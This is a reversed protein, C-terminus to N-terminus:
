IRKQIFYYALAIIKVDIVLFQELIKKGFRFLLHFMEFASNQNNLAVRGIMLFDVFNEPGGVRQLATGRSDLHGLYRLKGVRRTRVLM